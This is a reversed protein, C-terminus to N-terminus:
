DVGKGIYELIQNIEGDSLHPMPTMMTKNWKEYVEIARPDGDDISQQSNRIFKYIRVTDNNWRNMVGALAPGIRDKTVNHCQVCNNIFLKKGPPLPAEEPENTATSAEEQTGCAALSLSALLVFALRKIM